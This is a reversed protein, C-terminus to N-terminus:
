EKQEKDNLLTTLKSFLVPSINKLRDIDDRMFFAEFGNAFYERLSTSAYPSYFLNATLISLMPYGVQKYLYEDFKQNYDPDLFYGLSTELNERKLEQWMDKRKRVFELELKQDSYLIERYIEEVSHGAEHVLNNLMDEESRQENSAFISSNEYMAQIDRDELEKFKGIYITEINKLLHKPVSEVFQQLVTEASIDVPLPDKVFIHIGATTFHNVKKKTIYNKLSM